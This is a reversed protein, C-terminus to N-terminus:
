KALSASWALSITAWMARVRFTLTAVLLLLMTDSSNAKFGTNSDSPTSTQSVSRPSYMMWSASSVGEWRTAGASCLDLSSTASSNVSFSPMGYSSSMKWMAAVARVTSRSLNMSASRPMLPALKTTASVPVRTIKVLSPLPRRQVEAGRICMPMVPM